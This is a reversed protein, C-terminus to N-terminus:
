GAGEAAALPLRVEVRVGGLRSRRLGFSAGIEAARSAMNVLGRHRGDVDGTAELRLLTRLRAPDGDGDDDVGLRVEGPLYALRVVARAAHSHATVNFLAQAAVQALAQEVPGPLAVPSGELRLDIRTSPRAHFACARELVRPLSGVGDDASQNLSWIAGRLQDVSHRTLTTVEALRDAVAAAPGGIRELDSRCVEVLMGATLVYQTVSDHLERAIRTREADLGEREHAAVLLQQASLLEQKRAALDRAQQSAQRRLQETRSRLTVSSQHLFANHLAVAAQNVLIRLVALDIPEPDDQPPAGAIAGVPVGDITMPVVVVGDPLVSEEAPPDERLLALRVAVEETLPQGDDRLTGDRDLALFRPRVQPMAGDAVVLLVWDAQLYERAARVVAALLGRPGEVTRVLALSIADLSHLADELRQSTRRFARYYSQKGSRIGTLSALDPEPM